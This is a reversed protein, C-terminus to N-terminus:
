GNPTATTESAMLQRRDTRLQSALTVSHARDAATVTRGFGLVMVVKRPQGAPYTVAKATRIAEADYAKAGASGVLDASTVKGDAGIRVSVTAVGTKPFADPIQMTKAISREVSSKFSTEAKAPAVAAALVVFSLVTTASNFFTSANM